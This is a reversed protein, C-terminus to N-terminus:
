GPLELLFIFAVTSFYIMNRAAGHLKSCSAEHGALRGIERRTNTIRAHHMDGYIIRRRGSARGAGTPTM